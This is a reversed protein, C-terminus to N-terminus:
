GYNLHVHTHFFETSQNEVIGPFPSPAETTTRTTKAFPRTAKVTEGGLPAGTSKCNVVVVFFSECQMGVGPTHVMWGNKCRGDPLRRSSGIRRDFPLGGDPLIGRLVVIRFMQRPSLVTPRSTLPQQIMVLSGRRKAHIRGTGNLLVKREGFTYTQNSM